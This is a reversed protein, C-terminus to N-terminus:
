GSNRTHGKVDAVFSHPNRDPLGLLAAQEDDLAAAVRSEVFYGNPLAEADGQELLMQLVVLQVLAAPSGKGQKLDEMAQPSTFFLLGSSDVQVQLPEGELDSAQRGLMLSSFLDKLRNKM